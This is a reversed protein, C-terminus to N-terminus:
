HETAGGRESKEYFEMFIEELSAHSSVLDKVHHQALKKILPDIEGKITIRLVDKNKEVSAVGPVRFEDPNATEELTVDIYRVTKAAIESIREISVLCGDRIIGVRDCVKEVEPLIHSSLFITHGNAKFEHVLNYFEQQMLPDLGSTPEDLLLLKPNHM